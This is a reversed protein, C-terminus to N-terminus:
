IVKFCCFSHTFVYMFNSLYFLSWLFLFLTQFLATVGFNHFTFSALRVSLCSSNSLCVFQSIEGEAMFKMYSYLNYESGKTYQTSIVTMVESLIEKMHLYGCLFHGWPVKDAVLLHAKKQVTCLIILFFCLISIFSFHVLNRKINITKKFSPSIFSSYYCKTVSM